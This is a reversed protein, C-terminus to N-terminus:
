TFGPLGEEAKAINEDTAYIIFFIVVVKAYTTPLTAKSGTVSWKTARTKSAIRTHLASPTSNKRSFHFHWMAASKHIGKSDCDLKFSCLLEITSIADFPNLTHLRMQTSMRKAIKSIDKSDTRGYM